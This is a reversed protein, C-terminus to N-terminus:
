SFTSLDKFFNVVRQFLQGSKSFTSLEKFFNVVRKIFTWLKKMFILLEKIFTSFEKNFTWLEKISTTTPSRIALISGSEDCWGFIMFITVCVLSPRGFRVQFILVWLFEKFLRYISNNANKRYKVVKAIYAKMNKRWFILVM